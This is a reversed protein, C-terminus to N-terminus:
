TKASDIRPLSPPLLARDGPLAFYNRRVQTHKKNSVLGRTCRAGPM